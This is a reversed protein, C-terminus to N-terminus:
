VQAALSLVAARDLTPGQVFWALGDEQWQIDSLSGDESTALLADNGNVQVLEGTGHTNPDSSAKVNDQVFARFEEASHESRGLLVDVTGFRDHDYIFALSSSLHKPTGDDALYIRRLTGLDGKPARPTFALYPRAEDVSSIARGGIPSDYNPRHEGRDATVDAAASRDNVSHSQGCAVLVFTLLAAAARLNQM